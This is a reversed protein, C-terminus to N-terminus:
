VVRGEVAESPEVQTTGSLNLVGAGREGNVRVGISELPARVLVEAGELQAMGSNALIRVSRVAWVGKRDQSKCPRAIDHFVRIGVDDNAIRQGILDAVRQDGVVGREVNQPYVARTVVTSPAHRCSLRGRGAAHGIDPLRENGVM